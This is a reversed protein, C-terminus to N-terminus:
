MKHRRERRFEKRSRARPRCLGLSAARGVSQATTLSGFTQRIKSAHYQVTRESINLRLAIQGTSLGESLAVLVQHQRVSVRLPKGAQRADAALTNVPQNLTVVVIENRCIANFSAGGNPDPNLFGFPAPLTWEGNNVARALAKATLPSDMVVCSGEGPFFIMRTM